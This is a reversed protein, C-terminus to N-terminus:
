KMGGQDQGGGQEGAGTGDGPMPLEFARGGRIALPRRRGPLDLYPCPETGDRCLKMAKDDAAIWVLKASDGDLWPGLDFDWRDARADWMTNADGDRYWYQTRLWSFNLCSFSSCGLTATPRRIDM